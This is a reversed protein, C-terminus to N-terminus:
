AVEHIRLKRNTNVVKSCYRCSYLFATDKHNCEVHDLIDGKLKAMKGCLVCQWKKVDGDMVMAMHVLFMNDREQPSPNTQGAGGSLFM